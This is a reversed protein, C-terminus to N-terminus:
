AQNTILPASTQVCADRTNSCREMTVDEKESISTIKLNGKHCHDIADQIKFSKSALFADTEYNTTTPETSRARSSARKAAVM